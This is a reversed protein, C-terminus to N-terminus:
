PNIFAEKAQNEKLQKKESEALESKDINDEAIVLENFKNILFNYDDAVLYGNMKKLNGALAKM